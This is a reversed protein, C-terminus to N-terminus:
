SAGTLVQVPFVLAVFGRRDHGPRLRHLVAALGPAAALLVVSALGGLVFAAAVSVVVPGWGVWGLLLGLVLALKVDGFGLGGGGPVRDDAPLLVAFLVLAALVARGCRGGSGWRPRPWRWCPWSAGPLRAAGARGPLRHVDLDIWVLAVGVM